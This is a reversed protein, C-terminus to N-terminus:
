LYQFNMMMFLFIHFIFRFTTVLTLFYQSLISRKKAVIMQICNQLQLLNRRYHLIDHFDIVFYSIICDDSQALFPSTSMLIIYFIYSVISNFLRIGSVETKPIKEKKKKVPKADDEVTKEGLLERMQADM